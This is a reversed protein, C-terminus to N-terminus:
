IGSPSVAVAAMVFANLPISMWNFGMLNIDRKLSPYKLYLAYTRRAISTTSAYYAERMVRLLVPNMYAYQM